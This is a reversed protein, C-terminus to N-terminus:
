RAKPHLTTRIVGAAARADRLATRAQRLPTPGTQSKATEIVRRIWRRSVPM